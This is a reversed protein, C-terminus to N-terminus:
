FRDLLQQKKARYEEKTILGQAQLRKLVQLRDEISLPPAVITPPPIALQSEASTQQTVSAEAPEGLLLAQYAIALESPASSLLSPVFGSERVITQHNGAVLDYAPGADPRLPREWLLQRTSPMTVVKRYNALVVHLSPGEVYGGGTTLETLGQPTSRSMGFVVWENPQAQVFAKSLTVSLYSVEEETFASLVPGPPVPILLGEAQRQVHLETLISKWDEPSLAFPHTFGQSNVPRSDTPATQLRVFRDPQECLGCAVRTAPGTGLSAAAVLLLPVIFIKYPNVRVPARRTAAMTQM